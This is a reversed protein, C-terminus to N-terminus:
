VRLFRGGGLAGELERVAPHVGLLSGAEAIESAAPREQLREGLAVVLESPVGGPDGLVCASEGGCGAEATRVRFGEPDGGLQVVDALEGQGLGQEGFGSREVVLLPLEDALVRQDALPDDRGVVAEAGDGLM